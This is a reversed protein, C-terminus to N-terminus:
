YNLEILTINKPTDSILINEVLCSFLENKASWKILHLEIIIDEDILSKLNAVEEKSFDISELKHKFADNALILINDHNYPDYSENLKITCEIDGFEETKITIPIEVSEGPVREVILEHFFVYSIGDREVIIAYKESYFNKFERDSWCLKIKPNM